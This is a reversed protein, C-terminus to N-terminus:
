KRSERVIRDNDVSVTRFDKLGDRLQMSLKRARLSAAQNKGGATAEMLFLDFDKRLGELKEVYAETM